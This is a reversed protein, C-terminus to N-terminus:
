CIAETLDHRKTPWLDAVHQVLNNLTLFLECDVCIYIYLYMEYTYICISLHINLCLYLATYPWSIKLM